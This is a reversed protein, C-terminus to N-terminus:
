VSVEVSKTAREDAATDDRVVGANKSYGIVLLSSVAMATAAFVPHLRGTLALGVGFANYGIAWALSLTLRRRANRAIAIADPILGLSDRLLLLHGAQKSFDSASAVAIGVDAHAMAAADNIGDGVMAVTGRDTLGVAARVRAAKEDPLLAGDIRIGLAEGLMESRRTSDGSLGTIEVGLGRLRGLADRAEPRPPDSVIATALIRGDEVLYIRSNGDDPPVALGISELLRDGGVRLTRGDLGAEVGRGALVRYSDITRPEIGADRSFRVLGEAIPHDGHAEISALLGLIEVRRTQDAVTVSDVRSSALTLTGTKDLFMRRLSAAREVTTPSLFVIGRQAAHRMAAAMVLGPGIALACPCAILLVSLSRMMGEALQGQRAFAALVALSALVIVPALVRAIRDATQVAPFRSLMAEHLLRDVQALLRESAVREARVWLMGDIAISGALVPSGAALSVAHPEGTIGSSDVFSCGEHVTGDVPVTQGAKVCVLDGSRLAQTEVESRVGDRIVDVRDPLEGLATGLEKAAKVKARAELHKGITLIVLVMTVTDYYIPDLGRVTHWASLAFSAFVGACVLTRANVWGFRGAGERLADAFMPLGLTAVVVTTFFLILYEFLEAVSGWTGSPVAADGFVGPGYFAFSLAMVNLAMFLGAFLQVRLLPVPGSEGDERAPRVVGHM